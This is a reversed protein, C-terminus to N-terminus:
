ATIRVERPSKIQCSEPGAPAGATGALRIRNVFLQGLGTGRQQGIGVFLGDRGDARKSEAADVHNGLGAIGQVVHRIFLQARIDGCRVAGLGQDGRIAAAVITQRQTAAAECCTSVEHCCRACCLTQLCAQSIHRPTIVANYQKTAM